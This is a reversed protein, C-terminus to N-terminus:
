SQATGEPKPWAYALAWGVILWFSVASWAHHFSTSSALPFLRALLTAILGAAIWDPPGKAFSAACQRLIAALMVVFMVLGTLGLEVLAELYFNHPHTACRPDGFPVLPGYVPDLCIRNFEGLGVGFLPHAASMKLASTWIVGYASQWFTKILQVSSLIQREFIDANLWLVGAIVVLAVPVGILFGRRAQKFLVGIVAIALLACLFAMRDGTLLITAMCLAGFAAGLLVHRRELLFLAGPIFLWAITTGVWPHHYFATLRSQHPAHGLIDRGSVYQLVADLCLITLGGILAFALRQRWLADPLVFSQLAAAFIFFRLFPLADHLGTLIEDNFLSRVCLFIWFAFTAKIWAQQTWSFDGRLVSRVLFFVATLSCAIDAISPGAFIAIPTLVALWRAATEAKELVPMRASVRAAAPEM